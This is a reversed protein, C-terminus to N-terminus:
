RGIHLIKGDEGWCLETHVLTYFTDLRTRSQSSLRGSKFFENVIGIVEYHHYMLSINYCEDVMASDDLRKCEQQIMDYEKQLVTYISDKPSIFLEAM